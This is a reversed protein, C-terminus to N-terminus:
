SPPPVAASVAKLEQFGDWRLAKTVIDMKDITLVAARRYLVAGARYDTEWDSSPVQQQAWEMAQRLARRRQGLEVSAWIKRNDIRTALEPRSDRLTIGLAFAIRAAASEDKAKLKVITCRYKRPMYPTMHLDNFANGFLKLLRSAMAVREDSSDSDQWGRTTAHDARWPSAGQSAGTFPAAYAGSELAETNKEVQMAITEMRRELSDTAAKSSGRVEDIRGGLETVSAHTMNWITALKIDM